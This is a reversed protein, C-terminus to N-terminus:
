MEALVAAQARQLAAESPPSPRLGADILKLLRTAERLAQACGPCSRAHAAAADGDPDGPPLAARARQRSEVSVPEQEAVLADAVAEQQEEPAIPIRKRRRLEDQLAHAAISFLWSRLSLLPRFKRRARHLNLFTVQLLDDAAAPDGLARLFFGHLRPAWRGFLAAFSRRDGAAYAVMLEEDTLGDERDM